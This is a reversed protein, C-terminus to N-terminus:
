YEVLFDKATEQLDFHSSELLLNTYKALLDRDFEKCIQLISTATVFEYSQLDSSLIMRKFEADFVKKVIPYIKVKPLNLIKSKVYMFQNEREIGITIFEPLVQILEKESISECLNLFAGINPKKLIKRLCDVREYSTFDALFASIFHQYRNFDQSFNSLFYEPTIEGLHKKEYEVKEELQTQFSVLPEIVRKIQEPSLGESELKWQTLIKSQRLEELTKQLKIEHQGM